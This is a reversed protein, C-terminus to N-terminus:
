IPSSKKYHCFVCKVRHHGSSIGICICIYIYIPFVLYYYKYKTMNRCICNRANVGALFKLRFSDGGMGGGGGGDEGWGGGGEGGGDM